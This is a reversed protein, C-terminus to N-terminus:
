PRVRDGHGGHPAVAVAGYERVQRALKDAQSGSAKADLHLFLDGDLDYFEADTEYTAGQRNLGEDVARTFWDSEDAQLPM